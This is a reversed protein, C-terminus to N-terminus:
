SKNHPRSPFKSCEAATVSRAVIANPKNHRGAALGRGSEGDRTLSRIDDPLLYTVTVRGTAVNSQGLFKSRGITKWHYDAGLVTSSSPSFPTPM